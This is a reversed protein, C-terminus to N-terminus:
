RSGYGGNAVVIWLAWSAFLAVGPGTLVHV